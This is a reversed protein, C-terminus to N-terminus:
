IEPWEPESQCDHAGANSLPCRLSFKSLFGTASSLASASSVPNLGQRGVAVDTERLMPQMMLAPM